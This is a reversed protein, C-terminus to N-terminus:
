HIRVLVARWARGLDQSASRTAQFCYKAPATAPRPAGCSFPGRHFSAAGSSSWHDILVTSVGSCRRAGKSVYPKWIVHNTTQNVHQSCVHVIRFMGIATLCSKFMIEHEPVHNWTRSCSKMNAFMSDHGYYTWSMLVLKSCSKMNWLMIEHELVHFRTGFVHEINLFMFWTRSCSKMNQFMIQHEFRTWTMFCSKLMFDHESVHNWTRSCSITNRFCARHKLVHIMNQFVFDHEPVHFWTWIMNLDYFM